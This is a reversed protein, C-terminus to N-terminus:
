FVLILVVNSSTLNPSVIKSEVRSRPRFTAWGACLAWNLFIIREPKVVFKENKVTLM